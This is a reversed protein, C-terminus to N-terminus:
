TPALRSPPKWSRKQRAATNWWTSRSAGPSRRRRCWSEFNVCPRIRMSSRMFWNERKSEGVVHLLTLRAQHEQALSIAYPLAALVGSFLGDRLSDGENGSPAEHGQFCAPWRDAGPMPSEPFDGGGGLRALGQRDRDKGTTGIVILDIKQQECSTASRPGSKVRVSPYKTRFPRGVNRAIAPSGRQSTGGSGRHSAADGGARRDPVGAPFRVHLAHVKAGYRRALGMVYPLASEAAPSFDTAYLINKLSIRTKTDMTDM